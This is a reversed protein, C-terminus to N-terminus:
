SNNNLNISGKTAGQLFIIETGTCQGDKLYDGSLEPVRGPALGNKAGAVALGLRELAMKGTHSGM